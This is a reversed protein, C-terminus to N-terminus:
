KIPMLGDTYGFDHTYGIYFNFYDIILSNFM